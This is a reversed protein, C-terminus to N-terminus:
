AFHKDDASPGYIAPVPRDNLRGKGRTFRLSRAQSEHRGPVGPATGGSNAVDALDVVLLRRSKIGLSREVSLLQHASVVDLSDPRLPSVM